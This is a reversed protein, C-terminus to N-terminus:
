KKINELFKPQSSCNKVNEFQQEFQAIMDADDSITMDEWNRQLASDTYNFSGHCLLKKNLLNRKFLTFKHHNMEFNDNQPSLVNIDNDRLLNIVNLNNKKPGQRSDTIVEVFIGDKKKKRVLANAIPMLDFSFCCVSIKEQENKILAILAQDPTQNQHADRYRPANTFFAQPFTLKPLTKFAYLHRSIKQANNYESDYSFKAKIEENDSKSTIEYGIICMDKIRKKHEKAEAHFEEKGEKSLQTAENTILLNGLASPNIDYISKKITLTHPSLQLATDQKDESAINALPDGQKTEKSFFLCLESRQPSETRQKKEFSPSILTDEASRKQNQFCNETSPTKNFGTNVALKPYMGCLQISSLSILTIIFVNRINM